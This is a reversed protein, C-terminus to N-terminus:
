TAFVRFIALAKGSNRQVKPPADITGSTATNRHYLIGKKGDPLIALRKSMLGSQDISIREESWLWVFTSLLKSWQERFPVSNPHNSSGSSSLIKATNEPCFTSSYLRAARNDTISLISNSNVTSVTKLQNLKPQILFPAEPKNKLIKSLSKKQSSAIEIASHHPSIIFLL